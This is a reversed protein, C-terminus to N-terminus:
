SCPAVRRPFSALEEVEALAVDREAKIQSLQKEIGVVSTRLDNSRIQLIEQQKQLEQLEGIAGLKGAQQKMQEKLLIMQYEAAKRAQVERDYEERAMSFGEFASRSARRIANYNRQLDKMQEKTQELEALLSEVLDVDLTMDAAASTVPSAGVSISDSRSRRMSERVKEVAEKTRKEVSFDTGQFGTRVNTSKRRKLSGASKTNLGSAMPSASTTEVDQQSEAYNRSSKRIPSAHLAHSPINSKNASSSTVRVRGEQTSNLSVNVLIQEPTFIDGPSRNSSPAAADVAMLHQNREDTYPLSTSALALGTSSRRLASPDAVADLFVLIDPDNLHDSQRHPDVKSNVTPTSKPSSPASSREGGGGSRPIALPVPSAPDQRPIIHLPQTRIDTAVEDALDYESGSSGSAQASTLLGPTRPASKAPSHALPSLPRQTNCTGRDTPNSSFDADETGLAFTGNIPPSPPPLNGIGYFGSRRNNARNNATTPQLNLNIRLTGETESSYGKKDDQSKSALPGSSVSEDGTVNGHHVVMASGSGGGASETSAGPASNIHSFQLRPNAQGSKTPLVPLTDLKDSDLLRGSAAALKSDASTSRTIYDHQRQARLGDSSSRATLLPRVALSTVNPDTSASPYRRHHQSDALTQRSSDPSPGKAPLTPATDPIQNSATEVRPDNADEGSNSMARPHSEDAHRKTSSGSPTTIATSSAVPSHTLPGRDDRTERDRERDTARERRRHEHAPSNLSASSDGNSRGARKISRNRKSDAHKRSKAVRENHCGM